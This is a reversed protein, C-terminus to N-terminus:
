QPTVFNENNKDPITGKVMSFAAQANQILYNSFDLPQPLQDDEGILPTGDPNNAFLSPVGKVLINEWVPDAFFFYIKTGEIWCKYRGLALGVEMGSSVATMGAQTLVFATEEEQPLGIQVIGMNDSMGLVQTGLDVYKRNRIADYQIPLLLPLCFQPIVTNGHQKVYEAILQGRIQDGVFFM